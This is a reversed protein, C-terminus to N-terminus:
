ESDLDGYLTALVGSSSAESEIEGSLKLQFEADPLEADPLEADSLEADYVDSWRFAAWDSPSVGVTRAVAPDSIKRAPESM